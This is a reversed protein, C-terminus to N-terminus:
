AGGGSGGEDCAAGAHLLCGCRGHGICSDGFRLDLSRDTASRLAPKAHLADFLLAIRDEGEVTDSAVFARGLLPKIGLLPLLDASVQAGPLTTPQSDGDVVFETTSYTAIADISNASQRWLNLMEASPTVTMTGTPKARWLYVFREGGDFPIPRLLTSRVVAFMATNAGIGLGLTIM